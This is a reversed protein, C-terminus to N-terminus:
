KNYGRRVGDMESWAVMRYKNDGRGARDMESWVVFM